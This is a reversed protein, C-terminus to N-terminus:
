DVQGSRPLPPGVTDIQELIGFRNRTWRSEVAKGNRDRHM